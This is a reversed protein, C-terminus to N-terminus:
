SELKKLQEHLYEGSPRKTGNAFKIYYLQGTMSSKTALEDIFQTATKIDDAAYEWKRKLHEAAEKATHESGNRIFTAGKLQSIDTILLEIKQKESYASVIVTEAKLSKEISPTKYSSFSFLSLSMGIIKLIM